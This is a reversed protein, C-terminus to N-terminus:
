CFYESLIICENSSYTILSVFCNMFTICLGPLGVSLLFVVFLPKSKQLSVKICFMSAARSSPIMIFLNCTSRQTRLSLPCYILIHMQRSTSSFLLQFHAYGTWFQDFNLVIFGGLFHSM